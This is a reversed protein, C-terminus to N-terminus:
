GSPRAEREEADHVDGRRTAAQRRRRTQLLSTPQAADFRFAEKFARRYNTYHFVKQAKLNPLFMQYGDAIAVATDRYKAIAQKLDAAVRRARLSDDRTPARPPSLEMHKMMNADMPGSMAHDAMSAVRASDVAARQAAAPPAFLAPLAFFLIGPKTRGM